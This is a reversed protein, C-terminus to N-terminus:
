FVWTRYQYRTTSLQIKRLAFDRVDPHLYVRVARGTRTRAWSRTWSGTGITSAAPAATAPTWRRRITWPMPRIRSGWASATRRWVWRTSRSRSWSLSAMTEYLYLSMNGIVMPHCGRIPMWIHPTQPMSWMQSTDHLNTHQKRCLVCEIQQTM